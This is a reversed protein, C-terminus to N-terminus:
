RPSRCGCGARRGSPWGRSRGSRRCRGAPRGCRRERQSVAGEEVLRLDARRDVLEAGLDVLEVGVGARRVREANRRGDLLGTLRDRLHGDNEGAARGHARRGLRGGCAVVSGVPRLMRGMSRGPWRATPGGPLRARPAAAVQGPCEVWRAPWRGGPRSGSSYRARARAGGLRGRGRRGCWRRRRRRLWSIHVFLGPAANSSCGHRPRRQTLQVFQFFIQLYTSIPPNWRATKRCGPRNRDQVVTARM